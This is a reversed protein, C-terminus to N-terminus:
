IIPTKGWNLGIISADLINVKGDNNLDACPDDTGWKLGVISADLINVKGDGNADGPIWIIVKGSTSNTMGGNDMITLNLTFPQYATGNWRYTSYKHLPAVGTGNTGDGFEWAYSVIAGNPYDYSGSGNFQVPTGANECKIKDPGCDAVPPFIQPIILPLNDINDSALMYESDCIGNKNGDTCKQSFGTGNPYAWFNGGLYPGDVINKGTSITTNWINIYPTGGFISNDTNNFYNNYIFNSSSYTV